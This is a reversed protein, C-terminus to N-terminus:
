ELGEGAGSVGQQDQQGGGQQGGVGSQVRGSTGAESPQPETKIQEIGGVASPGQQQQQQQQKGSGSSGAVGGKNATGAKGGGKNAPQPAHIPLISPLQVLFLFDPDEADLLHLQKAANGARDQLHNFSHTLPHTFPLTDNSTTPRFSCM